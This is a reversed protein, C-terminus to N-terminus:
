GPDRLPRAGRRHEGHGVREQPRPRDRGAQAGGRDAPRGAPRADPRELSSEVLVVFEDGGLRGVTDQDRVAAQLREGAVKLLRDGAAHGLNDNVHKFGDVDIFLAGAAAGPQRAVRALLQEARDLVLARNPLGTLADHLAPPLARPDERVLALARRRGTALVLVLAGFLLSLLTGGILLALAHSDGGLGSTVNAARGARTWGNHLDITTSQAAGHRQRQHVDVPSAGSGYRFM